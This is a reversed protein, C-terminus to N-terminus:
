TSKKKSNILNQIPKGWTPGTIEEPIDHLINLGEATQLGRIKPNNPIKPPHYDVVGVVGTEM